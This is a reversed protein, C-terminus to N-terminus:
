GTHVNQKFFPALTNVITDGPPIPIFKWDADFMLLREKPRKEPLPHPLVLNIWKRFLKYDKRALPLIFLVKKPNVKILLQGIEWKLGETRGARVVVLKSRELLTNLEEKWNKELLYIRGAGLEPLPEGPRGITIYPGINTMLRPAWASINEAIRRGFAGRLFTLFRKDRTEDGFSRLFLVPPRKDERMVDEGSKATYKKGRWLILPGVFMLFLIIVVLVDPTEEAGISSGIFALLGGGVFMTWGLFKYFVGRVPRRKPRVSLNVFQKKM